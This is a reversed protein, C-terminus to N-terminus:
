VPHLITTRLLELRRVILFYLCTVRSVREAATLPGNCTICVQFQAAPEGSACRALSPLQGRVDLPVHTVTM